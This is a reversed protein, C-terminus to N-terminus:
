DCDFSPGGIKFLLHSAWTRTLFTKLGAKHYELGWSQKAYREADVELIYYFDQLDSGSARLAHSKTLLIRTFCAPKPLRAKPLWLEVSSQSRLACILRLIGRSKRRLIRRSIAAYM